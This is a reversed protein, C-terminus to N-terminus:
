CATLRNIGPGITARPGRIMWSGYCIVASGPVGFKTPMNTSLPAASFAPDPPVPDIVLLPLMVSPFASVVPRPTVLLLM